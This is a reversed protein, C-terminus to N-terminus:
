TVGRFIPNEGASAAYTLTHDNKGGREDLPHMSGRFYRGGSVSGGTHEVWEMVETTSRGSWTM